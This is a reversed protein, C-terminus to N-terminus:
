KKSYKPPLERVFSWSVEGFAKPTTTTSSFAAVPGIKSRFRNLSQKQRLKTQAAFQRTRSLFVSDTM